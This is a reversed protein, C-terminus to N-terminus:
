RPLGVTIVPTVRLWLEGAPMADGARVVPKANVLLVFTQNPNQVYYIFQAGAKSATDVTISNAGDAIVQGKTLMPIKDIYVAKPDDIKTTGQPAIYLDLQPINFTATNKPVGYKLSISHVVSVVKGAVSTAFSQDNALSLSYSVTADLKATCKMASTDCVGTVTAGNAALASGVQSAAQSCPDTQTTCSVSPVTGTSNGFNQKYEQTSLTIPIDFLGCGGSAAGVFLGALVGLQWTPTKNSRKYLHTINTNM